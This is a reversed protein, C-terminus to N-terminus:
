PACPRANYRDLFEVVREMLTTSDFHHAAFAANSASRFGAGTNKETEAHSKANEKDDVLNHTFM